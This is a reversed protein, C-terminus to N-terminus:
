APKARITEITQVQIRNEVIMLKLDAFRQVDDIEHKDMKRYVKGFEGKLWWGVGVCGSVAGVFASGAALALGLNGDAM